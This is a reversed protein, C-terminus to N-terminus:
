SQNWVLRKRRTAAALNYSVLFIYNYELLGPIVASFVRVTCLVVLSLRPNGMICLSDLSDPAPIFDTEIKQRQNELKFINTLYQDPQNVPVSLDTINGYTNVLLTAEKRYVCPGVSERGGGCLRGKWKKQYVEWNFLLIFEDICMQMRSFRLWCRAVQM